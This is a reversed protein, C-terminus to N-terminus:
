EAILDRIQAKSLMGIKKEAVEGNKFLILVPVSIVQYKNRLEDEADVDIEAFKIKGEFEPV